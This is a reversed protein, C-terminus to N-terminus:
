FYISILPCGENQALREQAGCLGDDIRVSSIDIESDLILLLLERELVM